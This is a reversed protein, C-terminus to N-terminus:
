RTPRNTSARGAPPHLRRCANVGRSIGCLITSVAHIRGGTSDRGGTQRDTRRERITSFSRCHAKPGRAPGRPETIWGGDAFRTGHRLAEDGEDQECRGDADGGLLRYADPDLHVRAPVGHRSRRDDHHSRRVHGVGGPDRERSRRGPRHLDGDHALPEDGHGDGHGHGGAPLADHPDVELRHRGDLLLDGHDGGGAGAAADLVLRHPDLGEVPLLDLLLHEHRGAVDDHHEVLYAAHPHLGRRRREPGRADADLAHPAAVGADEGVPQGEVAALGAAQPQELDRRHVQPLHLDDLPDRRGEVPGPRHAADDVEQRAPGAVLGLALDQEVLRGAAGGVAHQPQRRRQGLRPAHGQDAAAVPLTPRVDVAVPPGVHGAVVAADDARPEEPVVPLAPREEERGARGALGAAAAGLRPAHEGRHFRRVPFGEVRAALVEADQPLGQGPAGDHGRAGGERALPVLMSTPLGELAVAVIRGEGLDRHPARRPPVRQDRPGRDLVAGVTGVVDGAESVGEGGRAQEHLVVDVHPRPQGQRHAPPEVVVAGVAPEEAGAHGGEQPRAVPRGAQRRAGPEEPRRGEGLLRLRGAQGAERHVARKPSFPAAAERHVEGAGVAGGGPGDGDEARADGVRHVDVARGVDQAVEVVRGRVEAGLQQPREPPRREGEGGAIGVHPRALVDGADGGVDGLGRPVAEAQHGHGLVLVPADAELQVVRPPLPELGVRVAVEALGIGQHPHQDLPPEAGEPQEDVELVEGVHPLM